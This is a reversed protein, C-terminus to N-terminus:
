VLYHKQERFLLRCSYAATQSMVLNGFGKKIVKEKVGRAIDSVAM